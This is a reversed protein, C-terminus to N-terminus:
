RSSAHPLNDYEVYKSNGDCVHMTYIYICLHIFVSLGGVGCMCVCVRMYVRVYCVYCVCVCSVCMCFCVHMDYLVNQLVARIMRTAVSGQGKGLGVM